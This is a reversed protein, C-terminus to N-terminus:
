QATSIGPIEEERLPLAAKEPKRGMRRYVFPRDALSSQPGRENLIAELMPRYPSKECAPDTLSADGAILAAQCRCGGFDVLRLDCSRCPEPM